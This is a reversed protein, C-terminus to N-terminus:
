KDFGGDYYPDKKGSLYAQRTHNFWTMAQGALDQKEKTYDDGGPDIHDLEFGHLFVSQFGMVKARVAALSDDFGYKWNGQYLYGIKDLLASSYAQCTGM